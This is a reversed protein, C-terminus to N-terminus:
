AAPVFQRALVLADERPQRYYGQRRAIMRYGFRAYFEQAGVNSPRVELYAVRVGAQLFRRHGETMLDTAIGRRRESPRVAVNLVEAEDGVMRAMFYGVVVGNREATLAVDGLAERFSQWSWPDPFVAREIAVFQDLDTAAADRIRCPADM